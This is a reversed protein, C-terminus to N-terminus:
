PRYRKSQLYILLFYTCRLIFIHSYRLVFPTVVPLRQHIFYTCCKVNWSHQRHALLYGLSRNCLRKDPTADLQGLNICADSLRSILDCGVARIFSLLLLIGKSPRYLNVSCESLQLYQQKYQFRYLYCLASTMLTESRLLLFSNFLTRRFFHLM